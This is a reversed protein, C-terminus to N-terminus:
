DTTMTHMKRRSFREIENTEKTGTKTGAVTAFMLDQLLLWGQVMASLGM